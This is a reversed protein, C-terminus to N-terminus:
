TSAALWGRDEREAVNRTGATCPPIASSAEHVSRRRGSEFLAHRQRYPADGRDIPREIRNATVIEREDPAVGIGRAVEPQQALNPGLPDRRGRLDDCVDRWREIAQEQLEAHKSVM